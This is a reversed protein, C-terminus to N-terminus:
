SGPKNELFNGLEHLIKLNNLSCHQCKGAPIHSLHKRAKNPLDIDIANPMSLRHQM